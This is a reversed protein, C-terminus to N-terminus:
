SISEIDDLLNNVDAIQEDKKAKSIKKTRDDTEKEIREVIYRKYLETDIEMNLYEAGSKGMNVYVKIPQHKNGEKDEFQLYYKPSKPTTYHFRNVFAQISIKSM